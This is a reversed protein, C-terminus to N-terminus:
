YIVTDVNPAGTFFTIKIIVNASYNSEGYPYIILRSFSLEQCASNHGRRASDARKEVSQRKSARGLVLRLLDMQCFSCFYDSIVRFLNIRM